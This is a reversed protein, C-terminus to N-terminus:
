LYLALIEVCLLQCEEKWQGLALDMCSGKNRGKWRDLVMSRDIAMPWASRCVSCDVKALM